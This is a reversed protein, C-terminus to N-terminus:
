DPFRVERISSPNLIIICKRGYTDYHAVGLVGLERYFREYTPAHVISARRSLPVGDSSKMTDFANRPHPGRLKRENSLWEEYVRRHEPNDQDFILMGRRLAIQIPKGASGSGYWGAPEEITWLGPYSGSGIWSRLTSLRPKGSGLREKWFARHDPVRIQHYLVADDPLREATRLLTQRWTRRLDARERLAARDLVKGPTATAPVPAAGLLLLFLLL